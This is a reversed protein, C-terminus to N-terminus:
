EDDLVLTSAVGKMVRYGVAMSLECGHDALKSKRLIDDLRGVMLTICRKEATYAVVLLAAQLNQKLKVAVQEVV